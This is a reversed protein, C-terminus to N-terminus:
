NASRLLICRYPGLIGYMPPLHSQYHMKIFNFHNEHGIWDAWQNANELREQDGQHRHKTATNHHAHLNAMLERPDRAQCNTEARTAKSTCFELFIDKSQYFTQLHKEIYVLTDPTHSLYQAMLSFDVLASACKLASKFDNYQSSHRNRLASALVALICPGFNCMEKGQWHTVELYPKKQYASNPILRFKKGHM